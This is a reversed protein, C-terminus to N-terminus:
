GQILDSQPVFFAPRGTGPDVWYKQNKGDKGSIYGHIIYKGNVGTVLWYDRDDFDEKHIILRANKNQSSRVEFDHVDPEKPKRKCWFVNRYKAIACEALAGEINFQWEHEHTAGHKQDLKLKLSEVQRMVGINAAMMIEYMSLQIEVAM